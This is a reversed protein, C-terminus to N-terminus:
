LMLQWAVNRFYKAFFNLLVKASLDALQLLCLVKGASTWRGWILLNLLRWLKRNPVQKFTLLPMKRGGWPPRPGLCRRRAIEGALQKIKMLPALQDTSKVRYLRWEETETSEFRLPSAEWHKRNFCTLDSQKLSHIGLQKWLIMAIQM